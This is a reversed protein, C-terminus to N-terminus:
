GEKHDEEDNMFSEALMSNRLAATDEVQEENIKNNDEM